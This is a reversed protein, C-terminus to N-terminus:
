IDPYYSNIKTTAYRVIPSTILLRIKDIGLCIIMVVFAIVFLMIYRFAMCPPTNLTNATFNHWYDRIYSNETILYVSFTSVAVWNLSKSQFNFTLFLLLLAISDILLLPHNYTWRNVIPSWEPLLDFQSNIVPLLGFLASGFMFVIASVLRTRRINAINIYKAVYRGIFYLFVFNYLNFGDVNTLTSRLYWGYYLNIVVLAFLALQFERKSLHDVCKNLLPSILYLMFYCPVFWLDAHNTIPLLTNYICWRNISQGSICLYILYILGSYFACQIYFNLLGKVKIQIGFYGSILVFVPVACLVFGEIISIHVNNYGGEMSFTPSMPLAHIIIHHVVIFFMCILRLLEINSQRQM